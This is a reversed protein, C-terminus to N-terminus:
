GFILLKIIEMQLVPVYDEGPLYTIYLNEAKVFIKKISGVKEIKVREIAFRNM